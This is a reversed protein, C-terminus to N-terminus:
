HVYGLSRLRRRQEDTLKAPAADAAPTAAIWAELSESLAVFAEPVSTEALNRREGPDAALDFAYRAGDSGEIWKAGASRVGDLRRDWPRPDLGLDARIKDLIEGPRDYAM